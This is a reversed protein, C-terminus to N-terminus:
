AARRTSNASRTTSIQVDRKLIKDRLSRRYEHMITRYTGLRQMWDCWLVSIHLQWKDQRTFGDFGRIMWHITSWYVKYQQMQERLFAIKEDRTEHHHRPKESGLRKHFLLRDSLQLSGLSLLRFVTLMDGGWYRGSWLYCGKAEQLIERRMLGMLLNGKGRNGPHLIYRNLTQKRSPGIVDTLDYQKVSKADMDINDFRCFALSSEPSNELLIVLEEIFEPEWLDDHAAWMFFKGRSASFARQFNAAPGENVASRIYSVRTDQAAYKQAIKQTGDTSANDSIIIEFDTFTQSLLSDMAQPLLAEGNFVPLGISVSPATSSFGKGDDSKDDHVLM